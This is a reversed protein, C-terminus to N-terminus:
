RGDGVPLLGRLMVRRWGGRQANIRPGTELFVTRPPRGCSACRLRDVVNAVLVDGGRRAAVAGLDITREGWCARDGCDFALRYLTWQRLPSCMVERQVKEPSANAAM